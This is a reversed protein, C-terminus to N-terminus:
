RALFELIRPEWSPALFHVGLWLWLGLAVFWTVGYETFVPRLHYTLTWRDDNILAIAELVAFALLWAVWAWTLGSANQWSAWPNDM